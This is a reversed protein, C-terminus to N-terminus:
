QVILDRQLLVVGPAELLRTDDTQAIHQRVGEHGALMNNDALITGRFVVLLLHLLIPAVHAVLPGFQNRNNRASIPEIM